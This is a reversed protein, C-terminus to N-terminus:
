SPKSLHSVWMPSPAKMPELVAMTAGRVMPAPAMVPRAPVQGTGGSSGMRTYDPAAFRTTPRVVAPANPGQGDGIAHPGTIWRGIAPLDGAASRSTDPPALTGSRAPAPLGPVARAPADATGAQAFKKQKEAPSELFAM